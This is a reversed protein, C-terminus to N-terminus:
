SLIGWADPAADCFEATTDIIERLVAEMRENSVEAPFWAVVLARVTGEDVKTRQADRGPNGFLSEGDVLVLRGEVKYVKGGIAVYSEDPRGVRMLVPPSVKDWDYVGFPCQLSLSALNIADVLQNVKPFPRKQVVRRLLRESAPRDKTPDIGLAHYLKRNLQVGELSSIVRGEISHAIESCM